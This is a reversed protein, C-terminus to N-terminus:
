LIGAVGGLTCAAAVRGMGREVLYATGGELMSISSTWAAFALLVFFALGYLDGGAGMQAFANPLAVFVLGPGATGPALGFAFVVPVIALAAILAVATDALCVAGAVKPISVTSPLYAGYAILAAMGLSLSYFMQALAALVTAGSVKSFDAKFLYSVAEGF